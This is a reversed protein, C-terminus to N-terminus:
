GMFYFNTSFSKNFTYQKLEFIRMEYHVIKLQMKIKDLFKFM